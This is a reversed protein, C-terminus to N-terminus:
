LILIILIPLKLLRYGMAKAEPWLRHRTDNPLTTTDGMLCQNIDQDQSHKIKKNKPPPPIGDAERELANVMRALAHGHCIQDDRCQCVLRQGALEPLAAHLAPKNRIYRIYGEYYDEAAEGLAPPTHYAWKSPRQAYRNSGKGIYVDGPHVGGTDKICAVRCPLQEPAQTLRVTEPEWHHGVAHATNERLELTRSKLVCVCVCVRGAVSRYRHHEKLQKM